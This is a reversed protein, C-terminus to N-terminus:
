DSKLSTECAGESTVGFRCLEQKVLWWYDLAVPFVSASSHKDQHSSWGNLWVENSLEIESVATCFATTCTDAPRKAPAKWGHSRPLPTPRGQVTPNVRVTHWPKRAKMASLNITHRTLILPARRPHHTHQQLTKPPFMQQIFVASCTDKLRCRRLGSCNSIVTHSWWYTCTVHYCPLLELSVAEWRSYIRRWLEVKLGTWSFVSSM